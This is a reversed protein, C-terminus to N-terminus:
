APHVVSSLAATEGRKLAAVDEEEEKVQLELQKIEEKLMAAEEPTLAALGEQRPIYLKTKGSLLPSSPCTLFLTLHFAILYAFVIERSRHM